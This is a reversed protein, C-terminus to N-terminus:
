SLPINYRCFFRISVKQNIQSWRCSIQQYITWNYSWKRWFKKYQVARILSIFSLRKSRNFETAREVDWCLFQILKEVNDFHTWLTKSHNWQLNSQLFDWLLLFCNIQESGIGSLFIVDFDGVSFELLNINLEFAPIVFNFKMYWVQM